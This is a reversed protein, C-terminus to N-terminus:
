RKGGEDTCAATGEETGCGHLEASGDGKEIKGIIRCHIGHQERILESATEGAHEPLVIVLGIGMNFTRFMEATEVEGLQQIVQFVPPVSWSDTDIHASCGAPLIRPINEPFGGGTIHAMGHIEIGANILQQIMATYNIHPTLLIEGLPRSDTAAYPEPLADHADLGAADFLVARALSFGNTHLGSSDVGIITDGPEINEGNIIRSKEVVGTVIGVLDHEGPLYTNPMEATEGGILSIGHTRCEAALGDIIEGIREPDVADNAIYDLFTLPEAGHVAIDNCCASLLDQGIHSFDNMMRSVIVKTGVGDISQVLVPYKYTKCIESLDFFAGFSGLGTLVNPSFTSAAADKIRDVAKNGADIDVGANKYNM